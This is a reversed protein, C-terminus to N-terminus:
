KTRTRTRSLLRTVYGSFVHSIDWEFGEEKPVWWAQDDHSIAENQQQYVKTWSRKIPIMFQFITSVVFFVFLCVFLRVVVMYVRLRHSCYTYLFFSSSPIYWVMYVCLCFKQITHHHISITSGRNVPYKVPGYRTNDRPFVLEVGSSLSYPRSVPFNFRYTLVVRAVVVANLSCWQFM